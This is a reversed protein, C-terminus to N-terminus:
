MPIWALDDHRLSRLSTAIGEKESSGLGRYTDIEKQITRDPTHEDFQANIGVTGFAEIITEYPYHLVHFGHSKLQALSGDTFVGALVVGLFPHWADYTEALPLIAGQIEQAKNRSHKRYRRWATEIFAKPKGITDESGGEELVYDLDHENGRDDKWAVKRRGDRASRTHKYDLYLGLVEAVDQLPARITRELTDGIIQGFRHGPAQAM